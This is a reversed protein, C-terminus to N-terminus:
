TNDNAHPTGGIKCGDTTIIYHANVPSVGLRELAYEMAKDLRAIESHSTRQPVTVHILYKKSPDIEILLIKEVILDENM